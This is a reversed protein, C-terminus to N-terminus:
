LTAVVSKRNEWCLHSGLPLVVCVRLYNFLHSFKQQVRLINYLQKAMHLTTLLFTYLTTSSHSLTAVRQHRNTVVHLLSENKNNKM